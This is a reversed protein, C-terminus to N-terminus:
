RQSRRGNLMPALGSCCVDDFSRRDFATRSFWNEISGGGVPCPTGQDDIELLEGNRALSRTWQFPDFSHWYALAFLNVEIFVWPRHNALLGRAGEFVVPEFGEVDIKIFDVRSAAAVEGIAWDDLAVMPVSVSLADIVAQEPPAYLREKDVDRDLAYSGAGYAVVELSGREAGLAVPVVTVNSAKNERVNAELLEVNRPVAEFAFIHGNRVVRSLLLATAGINSGIDLIVGDPPVERRAYAVLQGNALHQTALSAFYPDGGDGAIRIDTGALTKVQV